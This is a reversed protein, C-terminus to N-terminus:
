VSSSRRSRVFISEWAANADNELFCDIGYRKNVEEAVAVGHWNHYLNLRLIGKEIDVIGPCSIGIVVSEKFEKRAGRRLEELLEVVVPVLSEGRKIKKVASHIREGDLTAILGKLKNTGVEIVILFRSNAKVRLLIPCRGGGSSAAGKRM